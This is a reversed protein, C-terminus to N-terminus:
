MLIRLLFNPLPRKFMKQTFPSFNPPRPIQIGGGGTTTLPNFLLFVSNFYVKTTKVALVKRISIRLFAVNLLHGHRVKQEIKNRCTLFYSCCVIFQFLVFFVEDDNIKGDKFTRSSREAFMLPSM